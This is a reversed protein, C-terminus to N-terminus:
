PSNDASVQHASHMANLASAFDHVSGGFAGAFKEAALRDAFCLTSPACCLTIESGIVYVAQYVNVMRGYLFETALASLTDGSRALELLGCHACCTQRRGGARPTISWVTRSRVPKGCVVCSGTPAPEADAATALMAGGRVKRVLGRSALADLDRHITMVSVGLRDALEAIVVLPQEELWTIIQLQRANPESQNM